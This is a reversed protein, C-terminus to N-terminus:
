IINVETELEVGFKSFVSRKILESLKQIEKGKAGGFNVLVLSQDEHVGYNGSAYGKWGCEEILWGAALKITGNEQKFHTITQFKTKIKKFQDAPIVPNKFFSGANGYEKPDPLKARRINCVAKSIDQVSPNTIGMAKLEKELSGYCLNLIPKKSLKFTVSFIIFKNRYERKFVSDRYGLKCDEKKIVKIRPTSMDIAELSVFTDKMEVGYAGINQIPSAGVCGPILSLNELGGFNKGVCFNVLDEWSEGAAAKVLAYETTEEIIEIGKNAIKLVLGDFDRTFLLNSGGGLILKPSYRFEYNKLIDYIEQESSVECFSTARADIGFTNYPKLSVNRLIDM